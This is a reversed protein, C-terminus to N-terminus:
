VKLQALVIHINSDIYKEDNDFNTGSINIVISEPNAQIKIFKSPIDLVASKFYNFSVWFSLNEIKENKQLPIVKKIKNFDVIELILSDKTITCYVRQSKVDKLFFDFVKSVETLESSKVCIYSEHNYFKIFNSDLPDESFNLNKSNSSVLEIKNDISFYTYSEMAIYKIPKFPILSILKVVDLSFNSDKYDYDLKKEFLKRRDTSIFRNSKIFVGYLPSSENSDAYKVSVPLTQLFDRNFDILKELPIDMFISTDTDFNKFFSFTYSDNNHSFIINNNNEDVELSLKEYSNCLTIFNELSIFIETDINSFDGELLLPIKVKYKSTCIFACSSKLDFKISEYLPHGKEIIGLFFKSYDTFDKTYLFM